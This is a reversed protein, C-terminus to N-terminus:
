SMLTVNERPSWHVDVPQENERGLSQVTDHDTLLDAEHEPEVHLVDTYQLLADWVTVAVAVYM